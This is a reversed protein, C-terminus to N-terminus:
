PRLISGGESVARLATFRLRKSGASRRRSHDNNALKPGLGGRAILLDWAGPIKYVRQYHKVFHHSNKSGDMSINYALGGKVFKVPIVYMHWIDDTSETVIPQIPIREPGHANLRFLRIERGMSNGGVSYAVYKGDASSIATMPFMMDIEENGSLEAVLRNTKADLVKVVTPSDGDAHHEIFVYPGSREVEDNAFLSSLTTTSILLLLLSKRLLM